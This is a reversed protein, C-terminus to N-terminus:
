EAKRCVRAASSLTRWGVWCFQPKDLPWSLVSRITWATGRNSSSLPIQWLGTGEIPPFLPYPLSRGESALFSDPALFSFVPDLILNVKLACFFLSSYFSIIKLLQSNSTFTYGKYDDVLRILSGIKCVSTSTNLKLHTYNWYSGPAQMNLNLVHLYAQLILNQPQLEPSAIERCIRYLQESSIEESCFRVGTSSTSDLELKIVIEQFVHLGMCTLQACGIWITSHCLKVQHWSRENHWHLKRHKCNKFVMCNWKANEPSFFNSSSSCPATVGLACPEKLSKIPIAFWKRHTPWFHVNNEYTTYWIVGSEEWKDWCYRPVSWKM